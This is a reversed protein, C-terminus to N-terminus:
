WVAPATPGTPSRSASMSSVTSRHGASLRGLRLHPQRGTVPAPGFLPAKTVVWNCGFLVLAASVAVFVRM